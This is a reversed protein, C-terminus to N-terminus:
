YGSLNMAMMEEGWDTTEDPAGPRCCASICKEHCCARRLLFRVKKSNIIAVYFIGVSQLFNSFVYAYFFANHPFKSLTFFFWNITMIIFMKVFLQFNYKLKHHIRGYTSMRNIIQLTSLCFFVNILILVAITTFFVAVGIEGITSETVKKSEKRLNTNDFIIHSFLALSSMSLTSTWVYCSYYCYKKGDTIRLFVNRSRFTKWIYYGFSNLWFFACLTSIHIGSDVTLYSIESHFEVFIHVINAVEICILCVAITTVINGILDCLQPLVFYILAVTLLLIVSLIHFVPNIIRKILKSMGNWSFEAKPVCLMGIQGEIKTDNFVVKDICYETLSFDWQQKDDENERCSEEADEQHVIHRLRGDRLLLLRDCSSPLDDVRWPTITKCILPNTILKIKPPDEPDDEFRAVWSEESNTLNQCVSHTINDLVYQNAPCCKHVNVVPAISPPISVCYSLFLSVVSLVTLLTHMKFM